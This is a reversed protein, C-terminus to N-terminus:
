FPLPNLSHFPLSVSFSFINVICYRSYILFEWWILFHVLLVIYFHAFSRFLRMVSSLIWIASLCMVLHEAENSMLFPCNFICHSVIGCGDIHSFYCSKYLRTTTLVCLLQFEWVSRIQTCILVIVKSFSKGINSLASCECDIVWCEDGLQICM